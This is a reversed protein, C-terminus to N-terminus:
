NDGHLGLYSPVHFITNCSLLFFDDPAHTIHTCIEETLVSGRRKRGIKRRKRGRRGQREGGEREGNKDKEWGEEKKRGEEKERGEREKM